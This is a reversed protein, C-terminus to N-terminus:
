TLFQQLSLTTQLNKLDYCILPFSYHECLYMIENFLEQSTYPTDRFIRVRDTALARLAHERQKLSQTQFDQKGRISAKKYTRTPLQAYHVFGTSLKIDFDIPVGCSAYIRNHIESFEKASNQLETLLTIFSEELEFNYYRIMATPNSLQKKLSDIRALGGFAKHALRRQTTTHALLTMCVDKLIRQHEGARHIQSCDILCSTTAVIIAKTTKLEEQHQQSLVYAGAEGYFHIGPRAATNHINIKLKDASLISIIQELISHQAQLEQTSGSFSIYLRKPTHLAYTRFFALHRQALHQKALNIHLTIAVNYDKTDADLQAVGSSISEQPLELLTQANLVCIADNIHPYAHTLDARLHAIGPYQAASIAYADVTHIATSRAYIRKAEEDNTTFRPPREHRTITITETSDQLIVESATTALVYAKEGRAHIDSVRLIEKELLKNVHYLLKRHLQAKHRQAQKKITADASHLRERLAHYDDPFITSVLESTSFEREPATSFTNILARETEHM